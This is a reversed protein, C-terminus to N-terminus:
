KFDYRLKVALTDRNYKFFGITSRQAVHQYEGRLSWNRDIAYTSSLDLALFDDQRVPLGAAFDRDYRSYQYSLGGGFSM